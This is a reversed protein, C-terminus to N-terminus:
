KKQNKLIEDQLKRNLVQQQNLAKKQFVDLEFQVDNLAKKSAKTQTLSNNYQFFFYATSALLILLITMVLIHYTTKQVKKGFAQISNKNKEALKLEENQLEAETKFADIKTNQLAILNNKEVLSAKFLSMSDAVNKQLTTFGRKSIVKYEKYNTSTKYLYDFRSDLTGEKEFPNELKKRQGIANPAFAISFIFLFAILNKM